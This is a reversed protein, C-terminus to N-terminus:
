PQGGSKFRQRLAEYESAPLPVFHLADAFNEVRKFYYHVYAAVNERGMSASDVLLYQTRRFPKYSGDAITSDTPYVAVAEGLRDDIVALARIRDANELYYSYGFFALGYASGILGQVVINDSESSSYDGRSVRAKGMVLETFFDYTGSSTGAGFLVVPEDPWGARLESWRIQRGQAEPSWLKRLESMRIDSAWDNANPVAIVVGDYAVPLSWITRGNTKCAELEALEIPRSANCLDIDGRCLKRIGGGTGSIGVVVKYQPFEDYFEETIAETIPFVTSSGDIKVYSARHEGRDHCATVLLLLFFLGVRMRWFYPPLVSFVRALSNLKM